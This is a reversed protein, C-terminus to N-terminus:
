CALIILGEANGEAWWNNVCMSIALALQEHM